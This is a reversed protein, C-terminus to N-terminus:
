KQKKDEQLLSEYKKFLDDLATDNLQGIRGLFEMCALNILSSASWGRRNTKKLEASVRRIENQIDPIIRVTTYKGDTSIHPM